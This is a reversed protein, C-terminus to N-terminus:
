SAQSFMLCAKQPTFCMNKGAHSAWDHAICLSNVFSGFVKKKNKKQLCFIKHEVGWHRLIKKFVTSREKEYFDTSM